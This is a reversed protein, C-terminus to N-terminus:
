KIDAVTPPFKNREICAYLVAVVAEFDEGQFMTSWLRFQIMRESKTMRSFATPYAINLIDLVRAAEQKTM